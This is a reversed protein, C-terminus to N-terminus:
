LIIKNFKKAIYLTQASSLRSSRVPSFDAFFSTKGNRGMIVNKDKQGPLAKESGPTGLYLIGQVRSSDFM